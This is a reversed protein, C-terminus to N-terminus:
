VNVVYRDEDEINKIDKINYVLLVYFKCSGEPISFQDNKENDLRLQRRKKSLCIKLERIKGRVNKDIENKSLALCVNKIALKWRSQFRNFYINYSIFLIFAYFILQCSKLFIHTYKRCSEDWKEETCPLTPVKSKFKLVISFSYETGCSPM